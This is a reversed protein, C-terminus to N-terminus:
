PIQFFVYLHIAISFTLKSYNDNFDISSLKKIKEIRNRLTHRHIYLKESTTNINCGNNLFSKLTDFYNSKHEKDYKILPEIKQYLDKINSEDSNILSLSKFFSIYSYFCIGKPVKIKKLAAYGACAEEYATLLYSINTFINSAGILLIVTHLTKYLKSLVESLELTLNETSLKQNSSVLFTLKNNFNECIVSINKQNFYNCIHQTINLIADESVISDHLNTASLVLLCLYSNMDLNLKDLIESKEKSNPSKGNNLNQLLHNSKQLNPHFNINYIKKLIVQTISSFSLEKPIQIIPFNNKNGADIIYKPIENLYYGLQIILGSVGKSHLTSILNEHLIENDLMYGTTLLLEGTDLNNIEDLIEMINIWTIEHNIGNKGAILVADNFLSLEFLDRILLSL